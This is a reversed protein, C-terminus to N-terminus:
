EFKGQKEDIQKVMSTVDILSSRIKENNNVPHKRKLQKEVEAARFSASDRHKSYQKELILAEEFTALYKAFFLTLM